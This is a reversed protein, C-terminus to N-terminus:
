NSKSQVGLVTRIGDIMRELIALVLATSFGLLFPALIKMSIEALSQDWSVQHFLAWSALFLSANGFPLGLVFSFLIGVILRTRLYNSDTIEKFNPANSGSGVTLQTLLSTGFFACVGLGGLACTWSLVTVLLGIGWLANSSTIITTAGLAIMAIVLFVLPFLTFFNRLRWLGFTAAMDGPLQQMFGHSANYLKQWEEVSARRGWPLYYLGGLDALAALLDLSKDLKVQKRILFNVLDRTYHLQQIFLHDRIISSKESIEQRKQQNQPNEPTAVATLM